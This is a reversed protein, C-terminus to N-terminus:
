GASAVCAASFEGSADDIAASMSKFQEVTGATLTESAVAFAAALARGATNIPQPATAHEVLSATVTDAAASLATRGDAFVAEDSSRLGAEVAALKPELPTVADDVVAHCLDLGADRGAVSAEAPAEAPTTGGCGTLAALALTALMTRVTRNM